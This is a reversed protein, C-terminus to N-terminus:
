WNGLPLFEGRGGAHNGQVERIQTTVPRVREWLRDQRAQLRGMGDSSLFVGVLMTVAFHAHRVLRIGHPMAMIEPSGQSM